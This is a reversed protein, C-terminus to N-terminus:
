PVDQLLSDHADRLHELSRSLGPDIKDTILILERFCISYLSHKAMVVEADMGSAQCPGAELSALRQKMTRMVVRVHADLPVGEDKEGFGRPSRGGRRLAVIQGFLSAVSELDDQKAPRILDNACP